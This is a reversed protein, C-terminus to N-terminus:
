NENELIEKVDDWLENCFNRNVSYRDRLDLKNDLLFEIMQGITLLMNDGVKFYAAKTTWENLRHTGKDSLEKLQKISIHQRM